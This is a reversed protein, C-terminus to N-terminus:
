SSTHGADDNGTVSRTPTGPRTPADRDASRAYEAAGRERAARLERRHHEAEAAAVDRTGRVSFRGLALGALLVVAVALGTSMGIQEAPTLEVGVPGGIPAPIGNVAAWIAPGVALWGGALAAIAAAVIGGVRQGTAILVAGCVVLVVGPVEMLWFGAWTPSWPGAVGPAYGFSPGALPVFVAWLGLLVIGVGTIRGRGPAVRLAGRRPSADVSPTTMM